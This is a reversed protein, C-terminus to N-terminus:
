YGRLARRTPLCGRPTSRWRLGAAVGVVWDAGASGLEAGVGESWAAGGLKLEVVRVDHADDIGVWVERAHDFPDPLPVLSVDLSRHSGLRESRDAVVKLAARVFPWQASLDPPPRCQGEGHPGTEAHQQRQSRPRCGVGCHLVLRADGLARDTGGIGTTRRLHRRDLNGAAGQEGVAGSISAAFRHRAARTDDQGVAHAGRHCRANTGLAETSGHKVPHLRAERDLAALHEEVHRRAVLSVRDRDVYRVTRDSDDAGAEDDVLTVRSSM